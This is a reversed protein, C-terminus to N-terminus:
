FLLVWVKGFFLVVLFVIFINIPSVIPSISGHNEIFIFIGVVAKFEDVM